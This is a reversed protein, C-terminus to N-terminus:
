LLRGAQLSPAKQLGGRLQLVDVPDDESLGRKELLSVAARAEELSCGVETALAQM